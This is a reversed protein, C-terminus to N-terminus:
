RIHLCESQAPAKCVQWWQCRQRPLISMAVNIIKYIMCRISNLALQISIMKIIHVFIHFIYNSILKILNKYTIVFSYLELCNSQNFPYQIPIRKKNIRILICRNLHQEPSGVYCATKFLVNCLMSILKSNMNWIIVTKAGM